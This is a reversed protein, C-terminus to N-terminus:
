RISRARQPTTEMSIQKPSRDAGLNRLRFAPYSRHRVVKTTNGSRQLVAELAVHRWGLRIKEETALDPRSAVSVALGVVRQRLDTSLRGVDHHIQGIRDLVSVTQEQAALSPLHVSVKLLQDLSVRKRRVMSGRPALEAWFSPWRALWRIYSPLARSSDISFTPYENSVLFGDMAASVVDIAGEWGNLRSIVFNNKHLRNLCAYSTEAGIIPARPFLGRGFSYIGAPHYTRDPELLVEDRIPALIDGLPVLPYDTM